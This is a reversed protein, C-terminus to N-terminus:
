PEQQPRPLPQPATLAELQEGLLGVTGRVATGLTRRRDWAGSAGCVAERM